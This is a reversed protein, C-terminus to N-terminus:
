RLYQKKKKYVTKHQAESQVGAPSNGCSQWAVRVARASQGYEQEPPLVSLAWTAARKGSCRAEVRAPIHVIPSLLVLQVVTLCCCLLRIAAGGACCFAIHLLM